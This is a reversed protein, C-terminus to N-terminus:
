STCCKFEEETKNHKHQNCDECAACLNEKVTDGGRSLPIKHDIHYKDLDISCYYCRYGQEELIERISNVSLNAWFGKLKARRVLNSARKIEKYREPNSKRWAIAQHKIRERNNEIWVKTIEKNRDSNIMKWLRSKAQMCSKCKSSLGNKGTSDMYFFDTTAPYEILCETCVKITDKIIGGNREIYKQM